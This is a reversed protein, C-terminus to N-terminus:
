ELERHGEEMMCVSMESGYRVELAELTAEGLEGGAAVVALQEFERLDGEDMNNMTPLVANLKGSLYTVIKTSLKESAKDSFLAEPAKSTVKEAQRISSADKSLDSPQSAPIHDERVSQVNPVVHPPM